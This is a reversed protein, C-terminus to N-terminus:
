VSWIIQRYVMEDTSSFFDTRYFLYFRRKLYNTSYKRESNHRKKNVNFNVHSYFIPTGYNKV